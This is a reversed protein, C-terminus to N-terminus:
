ATKPEPGQGEQKKKLQRLKRDYDKSLKDLPKADAVKTHKWKRSGGSGKRSTQGETEGVRPISVRSKTKWEDFRGSRYSAPLKVGSETKVLKVNDAGEGTGKVFKKKTKDWRLQRRKREQVADDGALDFAM